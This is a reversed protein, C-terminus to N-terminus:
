KPVGTLVSRGEPQFYRQAVSQVEEPTVKLAKEFIETGRTFTNCVTEYRGLYNAIENNSEFSSYFGYAMRNRAGELEQASPAKKQISALERLVITEAQPAKKGKQLNVWILFLSPDKADIGYTEVSSAVGTEVLARYLRSSKGQGLVSQFLELAPIDDHTVEPIRYAMLLKEVQMNLKLKKERPETQAPESPITKVPAAQSPLHGYYKEVMEIVDDPKVDGVVVITAHNPSYYSRYFEVADQSSMRALDEQYGIVPWRYPHKRFVLGYIEQYMMGDPSNENRYRRENQVVETETRFARDDVLLNVMRDSEMKVILELKDKPLEQVYGTYDHSTFANMSEGGASELIRDFEGDKLNKTQKFMMHEFLHALGTYKPTEDRSGVKFWTYYAFTPSRHDEVVLVRLGNDMTYRHVRYDGVFPLTEHERVSGSGPESTPGEKVPKGSCASMWAALLIAMCYSNFKSSATLKSKM